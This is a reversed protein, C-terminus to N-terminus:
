KRLRSYKMEIDLINELWESTGDAYVVALLPYSEGYELDTFMVFQVNGLKANQGTHILVLDMQGNLYNLDYNGTEEANIMHTDIADYNMYGELKLPDVMYNGSVKNVSEMNTTYELSLDHSMLTTNNEKFSLVTKYAIGTGTLSTTFSYPLMNMTMNFSTPAGTEDLTSVYSATMLTTGDVKQTADLSVPFEEEYTDTIWQEYYDDWYTETFIVTVTRINAVLLEANNEQSNYATEDTPYVLKLMDEASEVLVFDDMNYDYEYYGFGEIEGVSKAGAPLFVQKVKGLHIKGPQQLMQKFSKEYLDEDILLSLFNLSQMTSTTMMQEMNNSIQQTANRLEVKAEDASLDEVKDKDKDCSALAFLIFVMLLMKSIIQLKM